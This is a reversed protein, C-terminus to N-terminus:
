EKVHTLFGWFGMFNGIVAFFCKSSHRSKLLGVRYDAIVLLLAQLARLEEKSRGPRRKEPIAKRALM